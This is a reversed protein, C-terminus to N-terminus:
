YQQNGGTAGSAAIIVNNRHYILDANIVGITTHVVRGIFHYKYIAAIFEM